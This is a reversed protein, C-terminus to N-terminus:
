RINHVKVDAISLEPLAIMPKEKSMTQKIENRKRFFSKLGLVLGGFLWIVVGILIFIPFIDDNNAIKGILFGFCGITVLVILWSLISFFIESWVTTVTWSQHKRCNDCQSNWDESYIGRDANEKLKRLRKDSDQIAAQKLRLIDNGSIRGGSDISILITDDNVEKSDLTSSAGSVLDIKKENLSGCHECKFTYPVSIRVTATPLIRYNYAM